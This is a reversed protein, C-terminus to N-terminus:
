NFKKNNCIFKATKCEVLLTSLDQRLKHIIAISQQNYQQQTELAVIRSKLKESNILQFADSVSKQNFKQLEQIGAMQKILDEYKTTIDKIDKDKLVKIKDDTDENIKTQLTSLNVLTAQQKANVEITTLRDEIHHQAKIIYCIAIVIGVRVLSSFKENKILDIIEDIISPTHM